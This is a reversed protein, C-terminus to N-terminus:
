SRRATFSGWHIMITYGDPPAKAVIEAGLLGAAGPRNDIIVPRGMSEALRQGIFRAIIDTSGGTEFPVVYRLPRNPYQDNTPAAAGVALPLSSLICVASALWAKMCSGFFLLKM